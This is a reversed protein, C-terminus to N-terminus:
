GLLKVADAYAASYDSQEIEDAKGAGYKKFLKLVTERGKQNLVEGLKSKLTKLDITEEEEEEENEVELSDLDLGDDEDKKATSKKATSKKATSKKATSASKTSVTGSAADQLAKTNETLATILEDIKEELM